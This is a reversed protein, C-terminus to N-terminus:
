LNTLFVDKLMDMDLICLHKGQGLILKRKSLNDLVAETDDVSINLQEAIDKPELPVDIKICEMSKVSSSKGFEDALGYLQHAVKKYNDKYSNSALREINSKLRLGSEFYLDIYLLPDKELEAVVVDDSLNYIDIDTMAQYVYIFSTQNQEIKFLEKYLQSLPFIHGPGYILEIVKEENTVQYRKVYGKKLMFLRHDFHQSHFIKEKEYHELTGRKLILASLKTPHM